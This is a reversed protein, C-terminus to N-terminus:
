SQHPGGKEIASFPRSILGMKGGAQPLIPSEPGSLTAHELSL